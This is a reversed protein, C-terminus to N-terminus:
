LHTSGWGPRLESQLEPLGLVQSGGAEAEQVTPAIFWLSLGTGQTRARGWPVDAM